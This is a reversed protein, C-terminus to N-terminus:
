SWRIEEEEVKGAKRSRGKDKAKWGKTDKM